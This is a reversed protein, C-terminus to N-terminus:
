KRKGFLITGLRIYTAGEEIAVNYDSSMGMSLDHLTEPYVKEKNLEQLFQRTKQFYPRSEEPDHTLPGMTMLGKLKLSSHQAITRVCNGLEDQDVIGSKNVENDSNIEIFVDVQKGMKEARQGVQEAMGVSDITHIVDFLRLARNIKNKQLSGIFHWRVNQAADGLEQYMREAEQIYNHGIDTLGEDILEKVECATRTKVAGVISVTQPITDRITTFMTQSM